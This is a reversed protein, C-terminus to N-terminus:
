LTRFWEQFKEGIFPVPEMRGQVASILGIVWFAIVVLGLIFGVYPVAGLLSCLYLGLMQRIHFSAFESKETNNMILAIILGIFTIYSVIAITKGKDEQMVQKNVTLPLENKFLVYNFMLSDM